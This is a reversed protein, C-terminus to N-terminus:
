CSVTPYNEWDVDDQVFKSQYYMISQCHPCYPSTLMIDDMEHREEMYDCKSCFMKKM